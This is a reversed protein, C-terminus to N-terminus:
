KGATQTPMWRGLLESIQARTVPKALLDTMGAQEYASIRDVEVDATLAIIPVQQIDGSREDNRIIRTAEIGDMNPMRIDMLVLDPRARRILEVGAEGDSATQVQAGLSLLIDRLVERNAEDDEVVVVHGGHSHQRSTTQVQDAEAEGHVIPLSFWFRTGEGVTSELGLEGGMLHVLRSSIPLGLGTGSYDKSTAHEAQVYPEFIHRQQSEPIGIGTDEVGLILCQPGDAPQHVDLELTVQGETTFKIANSMLNRLVQEVRVPDLVLSEPINQSVELRLDLGADIAQARYMEEISEVLTVPNVNAENLSLKGAEIKSFDLIDDVLEGLTRTSRRLLEIRAQRVGDEAPLELLDIAGILATLPNRIEHSVQALFAGKAANAQEAIGKAQRLADDTQRLEKEVTTRRAIEEEADRIANSTQRSFYWVMIATMLMAWALVPLRQASTQDFIVPLEYAQHELQVLVVTSVFMSVSCFIMTKMGAVMMAVVPFAPFLLIASSHLGGTVFVAHILLGGSLVIQIHAPLHVTRKWRLLICSLTICVMFFTQGSLLVVAEPKLHYTWGMLSLGGIAGPLALLLAFKARLLMRPDEYLSPHLLWRIGKEVFQNVM